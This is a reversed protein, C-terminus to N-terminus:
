SDDSAVERPTRIDIPRYGLEVNVANYLRIKQLRVIHKFNWSVLVDVGGVTALAIHLMDNRFRPPLIGHNSYAELLELAEQTVELYEKACARLSLYQDRVREPAAAVEAAVVESLALDLKGKLCDAFLADSWRQFEPDFSGGIVSTDVYVRLVKVVALTVGLNATFGSSM